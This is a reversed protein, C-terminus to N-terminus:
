AAVAEIDSHVEGDDTEESPVPDLLLFQVDNGCLTRLKRIGLVFPPTDGSDEVLLSVRAGFHTDVKGTDDSAFVFFTVRNM